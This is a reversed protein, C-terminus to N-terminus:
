LTLAVAEIRKSLDLLADRLQAVEEATLEVKEDKETFGNLRDYLWSGPKDFYRACLRGINVEMLIDRMKLKVETPNTAMKEVRAMIEAQIQKSTRRGM